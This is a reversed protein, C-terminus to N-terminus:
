LSDVLALPFLPASMPHYVCAPFFIITGNLIFLFSHPFGSFSFVLVSISFASVKRINSSWDFIIVVFPRIVVAFFPGLFSGFM